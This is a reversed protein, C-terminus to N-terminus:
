SNVPIDATGTPYLMKEMEFLIPNKGNAYVTVIEGKHTYIKIINLEEKMPVVEALQESTLTPFGAAVDNRM